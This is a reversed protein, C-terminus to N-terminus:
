VFIRMQILLILSLSDFVLNDVVICYFRNVDWLCIRRNQLVLVM